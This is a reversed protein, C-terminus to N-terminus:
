LEKIEWGTMGNKEMIDRILKENGSFKIPTSRYDVGTADAKYLMTKAGKARAKRACKSVVRQIERREVEDFVAADVWFELMTLDAGKVGDVHIFTSGGMGENKAEGVVKGRRTIKAVFATTEESMAEFIKLGKLAYGEQAAYARGKREQEEYSALNNQIESDTISPM